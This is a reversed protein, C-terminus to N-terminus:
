AAPSQGPRRKVRGPPLASALIAAAQRNDEDTMPPLQACADEVWRRARDDLNRTALRLRRPLDPDASDASM